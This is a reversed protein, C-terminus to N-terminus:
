KNSKDKDASQAMLWQAMTLGHGLRDGGGGVGLSVGVLLRIWITNALFEGFYANRIM